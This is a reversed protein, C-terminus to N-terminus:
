KSNFTSCLIRSSYFCIYGSNTDDVNKPKETKSYGSEHLYRAANVIAAFNGINAAIIGSIFNPIQLGIM